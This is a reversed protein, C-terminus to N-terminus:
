GPSLRRDWENFHSTARGTTQAQYMALDPDRLIEVADRHDDARVTVVGISATIQACVTRACDSEGSIVIPEELAAHLQNVLDNVQVRLAITMENRAGM